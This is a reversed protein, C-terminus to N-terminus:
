RKGIVFHWHPGTAHKVPYKVEDRAEMITYGAAEIQRAAQEFTMGKIPAIDVAGQSRAHWSSPNAKSLAHNPGRYGSTVRASPFLSKIVATGNAAPIQFRDPHKYTGAVPRFGGSANSSAGGVPEWNAKNSPDGGKFRYGDEVAGPQLGGQPAFNQTAGNQQMPQGFQFGVLGGEGVAEYDPQQFEMFQKMGDAKAVFSNLLQDSYQGRYQAMGDFGMSVAQNIYQDFLAAREEPTGRQVIDYAAQSLFKFGEVAKSAQADDLKAALTSDEVWLSAIARNDGARAAQVLQGFQAKREQEQQAQMRREAIPIAVQPAYQALANLANPDAPNMAYSTLASQVGAQRKEERGQEFARQTMQGLEMPNMLGALANM